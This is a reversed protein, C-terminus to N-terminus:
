VYEGRVIAHDAMVTEGGLDNNEPAPKEQLSRKKM